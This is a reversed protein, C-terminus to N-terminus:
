HQLPGREHRGLEPMICWVQRHVPVRLRAAEGRLRGLLSPPLHVERVLLVDAGHSEDDASTLDSSESSAELFIGKLLDEWKKGWIGVMFQCNENGFQNRLVLGQVLRARMELTFERLQLHEKDAVLPFTVFPPVDVYPVIALVVVVKSEAFHFDKSKPTLANWFKHVETM